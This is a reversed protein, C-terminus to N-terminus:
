NGNEWFKNTIDIWTPFYQGSIESIIYEKKYLKQNTNPNDLSGKEKIYPGIKIYDFNTYDVTNYFTSNGSYWGFKLTPFKHKVVDALLEVLKPNSDGGMLCVCTIGTNENILRELARQSLDKGVNKWLHKSHCDPCRIPCGSINICLSIEDPIERFGVLTDVYKLM